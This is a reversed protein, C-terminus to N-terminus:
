KKKGSPDHTEAPHVGHTRAAATETVHRDSHPLGKAIGEDAEDRLHAEEIERSKRTGNAPTTSPPDSAPFSDDIMDDLKRERQHAKALIQEREPM